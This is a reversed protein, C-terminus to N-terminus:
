LGGDTLSLTQMIEKCLHKAEVMLGRYETFRLNHVFIQDVKVCGYNETTDGAECFDMPSM